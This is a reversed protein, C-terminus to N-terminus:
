ESFLKKLEMYAKYKAYIDGSPDEWLDCAILDEKDLWEYMEKIKSLGIKKPDFSNYLRYKEYEFSEDHYKWTKSAGLSILKKKLEEEKNAWKNRRDIVLNISTPKLIISVLKNIDSVLLSDNLEKKIYKDYKEKYSM